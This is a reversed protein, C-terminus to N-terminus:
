SFPVIPAPIQPLGDVSSLDVKETRLVLPVSRRRTDPGFIQM